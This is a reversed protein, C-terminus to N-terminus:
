ELDKQNCYELVLFAQKSDSYFDIFKVVNLNDIRKMIEVESKFLEFAKENEKLSVLDVAKIAM